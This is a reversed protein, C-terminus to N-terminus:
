RLKGEKRVWFHRLPAKTSRISRTLRALDLPRTSGTAPGFGGAFRSFWVLLVLNAPLKPDGVRDVVAGNEDCGYLSLQLLGEKCIGISYIWTATGRSVSSGHRAGKEVSKLLYLSKAQDVTSVDFPPGTQGPASEALHPAPHKQCLNEPHQM